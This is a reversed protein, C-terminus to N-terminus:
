EILEEENPTLGIKDHYGEFFMLSFKNEGFRIFMNLLYGSEITKGNFNVAHLDVSDNSRWDLRLIKKHM